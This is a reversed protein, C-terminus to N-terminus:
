VPLPFPLLNSSVSNVHICPHSLSFALALYSAFAATLCPVPHQHCCNQLFDHGPPPTQVSFHRSVPLPPLDSIRLSCAQTGPFISDRWSQLVSGPFVSGPLDMVLTWLTQSSLHSMIDDESQSVLGWASPMGFVSILQKWVVQCKLDRRRMNNPGRSM